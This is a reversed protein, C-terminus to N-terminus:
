TIIKKPRLISNSTYAETKCTTYSVQTRLFIRGINPNLFIDIGAALLPTIDAGNARGAYM